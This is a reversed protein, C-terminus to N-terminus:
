GGNAIKSAFDRVTNVFLERNVQMQICRTLMEIGSGGVLDQVKAVLKRKNDDSMNRLVKILSDYDTVTMYGYISGPFPIALM